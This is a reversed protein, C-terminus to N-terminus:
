IMAGICLPVRTSTGSNSESINPRTSLHGRWYLLTSSCGGRADAPPVELPPLPEDESSQLAFLVDSCERIGHIRSTHQLTDKHASGGAYASSAFM